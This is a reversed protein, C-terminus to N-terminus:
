EAVVFPPAGAFGSVQVARDSVVSLSQDPFAETDIDVVTRGAIDVVKMEQMTANDEGPMDYKYTELEPRKNGVSRIVWLDGM